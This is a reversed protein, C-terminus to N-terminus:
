GNRKKFELVLANLYLFLGCFVIYFILDRLDLVGRAISRFHEVPSLLKFAEALSPSMAAGVQPLLVLVLLAAVSLLLAIIQDRTLSSIFLGLSLYSAALLIGGLYGGIVPGWDLKGYTALTIPYPLTFALLVIVFFLGGLFKGLILDRTRVPFTLLLEFTGLKKEEAWLRMSLAPVLVLFFLPLLSFFGGMRAEAGAGFDFFVRSFYLWGGIGLFLGGVVYAIPSLFYSRFERRLIVTTKSM